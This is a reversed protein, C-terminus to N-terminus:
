GLFGRRKGIMGRRKPRLGAFSSLCDSLQGVTGYIEECRECVSQLEASSCCEDVTFRQTVSCQECAPINCELLRTCDTSSLLTALCVCFLIFGEIRKVFM